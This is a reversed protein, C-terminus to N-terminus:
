FKTCLVPLWTSFLIAKFIFTWIGVATIVQSLVKIESRGNRLRWKANVWHGAWSSCDSVTCCVPTRDTTRVRASSGSTHPCSDSCYTGHLVDGPLFPSFYFWLPSYTHVQTYNTSHPGPVYKSHYLACLKGARDNLSKPLHLKFRVDLGPDEFGKVGNECKVEETKDLSKQITSSSVKPM